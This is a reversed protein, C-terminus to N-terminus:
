YKQEYGGVTGNNPNAASTFSVRGAGFGGMAGGRSGGRPADTAGRPPGFNTGKNRSVSLDVKIPRGDVM